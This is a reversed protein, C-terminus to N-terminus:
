AMILNTEIWKLMSTIGVHCSIAPSWGLLREAKGIAAIFCDQDSARRPTPTYVLDPISLLEALLTFLELLSLSNALGGGINFIEGNMQERHDFAARYLSIVDDAHLM